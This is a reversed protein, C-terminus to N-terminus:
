NYIIRERVGGRREVILGGAERRVAPPLWGFQTKVPLYRVRFWEPYKKLLWEQGDRVDPQRGDGGGCLKRLIGWASAAIAMKQGGLGELARPPNDRYHKAVKAQEIKALAIQAATEDRFFGDLKRRTSLPLESLDVALAAM